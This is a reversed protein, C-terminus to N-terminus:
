HSSFECADRLSDTIFYLQMRNYGGLGGLGAVEARLALLTIYIGIYGSQFRGGEQVGDVRREKMRRKMDEIEGQGKGNKKDKNRKERKREGERRLDL